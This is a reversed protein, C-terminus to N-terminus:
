KLRTEPEETVPSVEVRLMAHSDNLLCALRGGAVARRGGFNECGAMWGVGDVGKKFENGDISTSGAAFIM